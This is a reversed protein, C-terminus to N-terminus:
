SVGERGGERGGGELLPVVFASVNTETSALSDLDEISPLRGEEDSKDHHLYPSDRDRGGERGAKNGKATSLPYVAKETARTM